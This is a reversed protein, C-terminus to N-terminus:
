RFQNEKQESNVSEDRKRASGGGASPNRPKVKMKIKKPSIQLVKKSKDIIIPPADSKM